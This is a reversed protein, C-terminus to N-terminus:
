RSRAQGRALDHLRRGGARPRADDAPGRGSPRRTRPRRMFNITLNTTVAAARGWGDWRREKLLQWRLAPEPQTPSRKARGERVSLYLLGDSLPPDPDNGAPEDTRALHADAFLDAMHATADYYFRPGCRISTPTPRGEHRRLVAGPGLGARKRACISSRSSSASSSTSVWGSDSVPSAPTTPLDEDLAYGLYWRHALNLDRDRHAETGLSAKSSCSWSCSSSSWRTSLPDAGNPMRSEHGVRPRLEPGAQGSWIVTSTTQRSGAGGADALAAASRVGAGQIGMM